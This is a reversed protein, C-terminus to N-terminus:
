LLIQRTEKISHSWVAIAPQIRLLYYGSKGIAHLYPGLRALPLEIWPLNTLDESALILHFEVSKWARNKKEWCTNNFSREAM